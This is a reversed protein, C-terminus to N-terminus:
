LRRTTPTMKKIEVIRTHKSKIYTECLEEVDELNHEIVKNMTKADSDSSGFNFFHPEDVLGIERLVIQNVLKSTQIVRTNSNHGLWWFWLQIQPNSSILYTPCGRGQVLMSKNSNTDTDFIFLKKKKSAVGIKNGEQKLIM